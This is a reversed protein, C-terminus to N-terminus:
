KESGTLVIAGISEDAEFVQLAAKLDAILGSSLANLAKPRILRILGAPGHTEVLINEYAMASSRDCVSRYARALLRGFPFRSALPRPPASAGARVSKQCTEGFFPPPM